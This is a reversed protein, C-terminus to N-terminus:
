TQSELGRMFVWTHRRMHVIGPGPLCLCTSCWFKIGDLIVSDTLELNSSFGERVIFPLSYNLLHGVNVGELTCECMCMLIHVCVYVCECLLHLILLYICTIQSIKNDLEVSNEPAEDTTNCVVLASYELDLSLSIELTKKHSALLNDINM